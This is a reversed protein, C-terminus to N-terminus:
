EWNKFKAKIKKEFRKNRITLGTWTIILLTILDLIMKLKM